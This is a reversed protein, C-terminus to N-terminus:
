YHEGFLYNAHKKRKRSELWHSVGQPTKQNPKTWVPAPASKDGPDFGPIRMKWTGLVINKGETDKNEEKIRREMDSQMLLAKQEWLNQRAVIKERDARLLDKIKEAQVSKAAEKEERRRILAERDRNVLYKKTKANLLTLSNDIAESLLDRRVRPVIIIDSSYAQPPFSLGINPDPFTLNSLTPRTQPTLLGQKTASTPASVQPTSRRNRFFSSNSHLMFTKRTTPERTLVAEEPVHFLLEAQNLSILGKKTKSQSM